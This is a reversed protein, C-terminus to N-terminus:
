IGMSLSFAIIFVYYFIAAIIMITDANDNHNSKELFVSLDM